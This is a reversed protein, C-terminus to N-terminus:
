YSPSSKIKKKDIEEWTQRNYKEERYKVRFYNRSEKKNVDWHLHRVCQLDVIATYSSTRDMPRKGFVVFIRSACAGPIGPVNEQWRSWLFGSTLSGTMCWPVHTVCTGHHMDLDSVLHPPSFTRPMVPAHAVRLKAYRTLPGHVPMSMIVLDHENKDTFRRSTNIEFKKLKESCIRTLNFFQIM